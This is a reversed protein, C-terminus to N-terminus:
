QTAFVKELSAFGKFELANGSPDLIFLTGQEGPLGQFRIRPGILCEIGAAQIRDALAQWAEMPLVIGFHPIPVSDGDVHNTPSSVKSDVLHASIQHGFFDFDIWRTDSRGPKCGLVETYFQRTQELDTVTFALHFPNLM